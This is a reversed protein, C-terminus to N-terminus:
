KFFGGNAYKIYTIDNKYLMFHYCDEKENIIRMIYDILKFLQTNRITKFMSTRQNEDIFKKDEISSYLQSKQFPATDAEMMAIIEDILEEYEDDIVGFERLLQM